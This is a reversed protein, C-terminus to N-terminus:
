EGNGQTYIFFASTGLLMLAFINERKLSTTKITQYSILQNDSTADPYREAFKLDSLVEVSSLRFSDVAVRHEEGVQYSLYHRIDFARLEPTMLATDKTFEMLKRPELVPINVPLRQIQMQTHPAIFVTPEAIEITATGRTKTRLLLKPRTITEITVTRQDPQYPVNEGNIIMSSRSFDVIVPEDTPNNIVFGLKGEENWFSYGISIDDDSQQLSSTQQIQTLQYAKQTCGSFFLIALGVFLSTKMIVSPQLSISDIFTM